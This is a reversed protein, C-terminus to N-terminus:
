GVMYEYHQLIEAMQFKSQAEVQLPLRPSARRDPPQLRTRSLAGPQRATWRAHRGAFRRGRLRKM